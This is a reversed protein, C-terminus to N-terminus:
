RIYLRISRFPTRIAYYQVKHAYPVLCPTAYIQSFLLTSASSIM